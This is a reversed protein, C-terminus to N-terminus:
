ITSLNNVIGDMTKWTVGYFKAKASIWIKKEGFKFQTTKFEDRLMKKQDPTIIMNSDRGRIIQDWRNSKKTGNELHSPNVCSPIDCRHCVCNGPAYGNYYEFSLRHAKSYIRNFKIVGYGQYDKEGEWMWCEGEPGEKFKSLFREFPDTREVFNNM